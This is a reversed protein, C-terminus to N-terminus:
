QVILKQTFNKGSQKNTMRVVYSGAAVRPVPMNLIGAEKDIWVEKKFVLQGAITLLQFIYYGEDMQACEMNVSSGARVPNPYVKMLPETIPVPQVQKEWRSVVIMGIAGMVRSQSSATVMVEPLLSKAALRITMTDTQDYVDLVIERSEFGASSITLTKETKALKKDIFFLGNSDAKVGYGSEKILVTAYPIPNGNEDIVNGSFSIKGSRKLDVPYEVDGMIIRQLIPDTTAEPTKAAPVILTDKKSDPTCVTLQDKKVAIVAGQSYSKSALFAPLAFQFFYKIWPIRKRPIEIERDLQDEMFRGCVSGTSPKKFFAAVQSDSMRSFDVVQKQCAGCFRGKESPTMREWNEHCPEPITFQVHKAM